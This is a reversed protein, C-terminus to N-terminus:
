GVLAGTMLGQPAAAPTYACPWAFCTARVPRQSSGAAKAQLRPRKKERDDAAKSQEARQQIEPMALIMALIM